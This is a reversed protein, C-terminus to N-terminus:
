ADWTACVAERRAPEPTNILLTGAVGAYCGARAADSTLRCLALGDEVKQNVEVLAVAAGRVCAPEAATGARACLEQARRPDRGAYASIDRGLSAYCVHVMSEPARSCAQATHPIDGSMAVLVAATQILYCQYWYKQAVATCPYLPDNRDLPKWPAAAAEGHGMAAHDMGSHDMAAHDMGEHGAHGGGHSLAHHSEATAEPHTVAVINEMFAGGYCGERAASDTLLDCRELVAPLQNRLLAMLGHGLGHNCQGWLLGNRLHPTCVANLQEGTLPAGGRSVDLFYGQIVGHYCGSIQTNPCAAFTAAMTEPNKYAAIGLGHALPHANDRVTADTEALRDLIAMAKAVGSRDLVGYLAREVCESRTGTLGGCGRKMWVAMSDPGAASDAALRDLWRNSAPRPSPGSAAPNCAALLLGCLALPALRAM